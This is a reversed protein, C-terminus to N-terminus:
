EREKDIELAVGNPETKANSRICTLIAGGLTRELAAFDGGKAIPQNLTEFGFGADRLTHLIGSADGKFHLQYGTGQEWDMARMETLQLGQWRTSVPLRALRVQQQGSDQQATQVEVPNPSGALYVLRLTSGAVAAAAERVRGLLESLSPGPECTAPDAFAISLQAPEVSPADGALEGRSAASESFKKEAISQYVVYALGGGLTLVALSGAVAYKIIKSRSKPESAAAAHMDGSLLRSKKREFEEKTLVGSDLLKGLRELAELYNEM